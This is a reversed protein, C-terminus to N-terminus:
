SESSTFTEAQSRRKSSAQRLISRASASHRTRPTRVLM